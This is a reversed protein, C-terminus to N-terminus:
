TDKSSRCGDISYMRENSADPAKHANALVKGYPFIIVSAIVLAWKVPQLSRYVPLSSWETPYAKDNEVCRVRM